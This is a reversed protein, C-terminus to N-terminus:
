IETVEAPTSGPAGGAAIWTADPWKFNANTFQGSGSEYPVRGVAISEGAAPPRDLSYLIEFDVRNLTFVGDSSVQSGSPIVKAQGVPTHLIGNEDKFAQNPAPLEPQENLRMGEIVLRRFSRPEYLRVTKNTDTDMADSKRGVPLAVQGTDYLIESTIHYEGYRHSDRYATQYPPLSVPSAFTQQGEFTPNPVIYTPPPIPIELKDPKCPNQPLTHALFASAIDSTPGFNEATLGDYSGLEAIGMEHIPIGLTVAGINFIGSTDSGYSELALELEIQNQDALHSVLQMNVPVSVESAQHTNSWNLKKFAIGVAMQFMQEQRVQRHSEMVISVSSHAVTGYRFPSGVRHIVDWRAVPDPPVAYMERDVIEFTLSMQDGSDDWHVRERKFGSTLPPWTLYRFRHPNVTRDKQRLVGRFVRTTLWSHGDVDDAVTWSINTVGTSDDNPPDNDCIAIAFEVRMRYWASHGGIVKLASWQPKPGNDLDANVFPPVFTGSLENESPRVDFLTTGDIELTFNRRPMNLLRQIKDAGIALVTEGTALGCTSSTGLHAIGRFTVTIRNFIPDKGGVADYEIENDIGEILVSSFIVSNYSATTPM